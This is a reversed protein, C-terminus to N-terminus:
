KANGYASQVEKSLSRAKAKGLNQQDKLFHFLLESYGFSGSLEESLQDIYMSHYIDSGPQKPYLTDDNKIADQLMIKLMLAEFNDTQERLRKDESDVGSDGKAQNLNQAQSSLKVSQYNALAMSTDINM